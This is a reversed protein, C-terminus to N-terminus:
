GPGDKLAGGGRGQQLSGLIAGNAEGSVAPQKRKQDEATDEFDALIAWLCRLVLPGFLFADNEWSFGGRKRHERNESFSVVM